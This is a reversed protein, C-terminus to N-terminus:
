KEVEYKKSLAYRTSLLEDKLEKILELALKEKEQNSKEINVVDSTLRRVVRYMEAIENEVKILHVNLMTSNKENVKIRKILENELNTILSEKAKEKADLWKYDYVKKTLEKVKEEKDQIIRLLEEISKKQKSVDIYKYKVKTKATEMFSLFLNIENKIEEELDYFVQPKTIAEKINILEHNIEKKNIELFIHSNIKNSIILFNQYFLDMKNVDLESSYQIVTYKNLELIKKALFSLKEKTEQLKDTLEKKELKYLPTQISRYVERSLMLIEDIYELINKM